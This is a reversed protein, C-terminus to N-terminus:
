KKKDILKIIRVSEIFRKADATDLGAETKSTVMAAYQCGHAVILRARVFGAKMGAEVVVDRAPYTQVKLDHERVLKGGSSREVSGNRANDFIVKPAQKMYEPSFESVTVLYSTDGVNARYVAIKVDRGDPGKQTMKSVKHGLPITVGFGHPRASLKAWGEPLKDQMLWTTSLLTFLLLKM